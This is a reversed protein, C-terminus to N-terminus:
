PTHTHTHAGEKPLEWYSKTVGHQIRGLKRHKGFWALLHYTWGKRDAWPIMGVKSWDKFDVVAIIVM